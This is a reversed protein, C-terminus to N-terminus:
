NVIVIGMIGTALRRGDFISYAQKCFFHDEVRVTYQNIEIHQLITEELDPTSAKRSMRIMEQDSPKTAILLGALVALFVIVFITQNKM